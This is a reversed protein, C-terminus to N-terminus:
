DCITGVSGTLAGTAADYYLGSFTSSQAVGAGSKPMCWIQIDSPAEGTALDFDLPGSAGEFNINKGAQLAQFAANINAGGVKSPDGDVLKSMAGALSAGTIPADGLSVTAYALLYVSDYAGAAGFVNASVKPYAASFNGSFSLFLPNNTGPVTGRIRKRLDDNSGVVNEWLQTVIGGDTLVYLPRKVGSAWGAEIQKVLPDAVEGTGVILVVDPEWAIAAATVEEYKTPKVTPDDPDGYPLRKYFSSMNSADLAPKGNIQLKQEVAAALGAGYADEKHLVLYKLGSAYLPPDVSNGEAEIQASYQVVAEAQFVDSPSTRWLLGKDSLNTISASTASPSIAIMGSPITGATAMKLTVGSYASGIIAPVGAEALHKAAKAAVDGSSQDNCSILVIPRTATSGPAPPLGNSNTRFENIALRTANELIKGTSGEVGAGEDVTPEISGILLASDDSDDGDVATCEDSLLPACTGKAHNCVWHEGNDAQCQANTCSSAASGVCLGEQCTTGAFAECDGNTSCQDTTRDVIFSCSIASAAAVVSLAGGLVFRLFTHM